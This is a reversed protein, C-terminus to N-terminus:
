LTKKLLENRHNFAAVVFVGCSEEHLYQEPFCLPAKCLLGTKLLPVAILMRNM